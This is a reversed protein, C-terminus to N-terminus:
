CTWCHNAKLNSWPCENNSDYLSNCIPFSYTQQYALVPLLEFSSQTTEWWDASSEYLDIVGFRYQGSWWFHYIVTNETVCLNVPGSSRKHVVQHVTAGTASDVLYITIVDSSSGHPSETAIAILNPNLYKERITRKGFVRGSSHVIERPHHREMAIIRESDTPFVREWIGITKLKNGSVDDTITYGEASGKNTDILFFFIFELSVEGTPDM